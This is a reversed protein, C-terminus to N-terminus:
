TSVPMIHCHNQIFVLIISHPRPLLVIYRELPDVSGFVLCETSSYYGFEVDICSENGDM